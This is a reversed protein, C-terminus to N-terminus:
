MEICLEEEQKTAQKEEEEKAKMEEEIEKKIAMIRMEEM